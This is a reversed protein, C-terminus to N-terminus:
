PCAWALGGNQSNGNKKHHLEIASDARRMWYAQFEKVDKFTSLSEEYEDTRNQMDVWLWPALYYMAKSGVIELEETENLELGEYDMLARKIHQTVMEEKLTLPFLKQLDDLAMM